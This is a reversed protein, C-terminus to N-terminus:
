YTVLMHGIAPQTRNCCSTTLSTLEAQDGVTLGRCPGLSARAVPDIILMSIPVVSWSYEYVKTLVKGQEIETAKWDFVCDSM